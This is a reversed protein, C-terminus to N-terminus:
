QATVDYELTAQPKKEAQFFFEILIAAIALPGVDWITLIGLTNFFLGLVIIMCVLASQRMSSALAASRRRWVRRIGYWLLGGWLTLSVYLSVFFAWLVSRAATFPSSSVLVSVLQATGIIAIAIIIFLFVRHKM